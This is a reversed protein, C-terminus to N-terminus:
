DGEGVGIGPLDMPAILTYCLELGLDMGVALSLFSAEVQGLLPELLASPGCQLHM